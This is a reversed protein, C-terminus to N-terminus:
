GVRQIRKKCFLELGFDKWNEQLEWSFHITPAQAAEKMGDQKM